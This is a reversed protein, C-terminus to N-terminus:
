LWKVDSEGVKCGGNPTKTVKNCMDGSGSKEGMIEASKLFCQLLCM